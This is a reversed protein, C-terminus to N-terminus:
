TTSEYINKVKKDNIHITNFKKILLTDEFNYVNGSTVFLGRASLLKLLETLQSEFMQKTYNLEKEEKKKGVIKFVNMACIMDFKETQMFSNSTSLIFSTNDLKINKRCRKIAKVSIDAGVITSKPFIKNLCICEAGLGCGFSLIRKPTYGSSSIKQFLTKYRNTRYSSVYRVRIDLPNKTNPDLPNKTNPYLFSLPIQKIGLAIAVGLRHHGNLLMTKNGIYICMPQEFDWGYKQMSNYIFNWKEAGTMKRGLDNCVWWSRLFRKKTRITKAYKRVDDINAMYINEELYIKKQHKKWIESALAIDATDTCIKKGFGIKNKRRRTMEEISKCTNEISYKKIINDM